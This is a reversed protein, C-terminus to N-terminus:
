GKFMAKFMPNQGLTEGVNAFQSLIQNLAAKMERVDTAMQDFQAKPM